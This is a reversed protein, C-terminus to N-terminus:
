MLHSHGINKIMELLKNKDAGRYEVYMKYNNNYFPNTISSHTLKSHNLHLMRSDPRIIPYLKRAKEYFADDEAGWGIFRPDYGGLDWYTKANIFLVGGNSMCGREILDPRNMDFTEHNKIFEVTQAETLNFLPKNFPIIIPIKILENINKLINADVVCDNDSFIIYEYKRHKYGTNLCLSRCFLNNETVIKVHKNVHKDILNNETISNQEVLIINCDPILKRYYYIIFNLNRERYIDANSHIIVVDVM